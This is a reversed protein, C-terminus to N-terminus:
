EVTLKVEKLEEDIHRYTYLDLDSHNHDIDFAAHTKCSRPVYVVITKVPNEGTGCIMVYTNM